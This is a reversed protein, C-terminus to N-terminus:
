TTQVAKAAPLEFRAGPMAVVNVLSGIALEGHTLDFAHDKEPLTVIFHTGAQVVLERGNAFKVRGQITRPTGFIPSIFGGGSPVTWLKRAQVRILLDAPVNLPGGYAIGGSDLHLEYNTGTPAFTIRDPQVATVKGHATFDSVSPM